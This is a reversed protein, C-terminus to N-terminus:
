QPKYAWEKVVGNEVVHGDADLTKGDVTGGLLCAGYLGNGEENFYFLRYKGDAGKIYQWGTLMNGNEDFYFWSLNGVPNTWLSDPVLAWENRVVEGKTNKLQFFGDYSKTWIYGTSRVFSKETETLTNVPKSIISTGMIQNGKADRTVPTVAPKPAPATAATKVSSSGGHYFEM